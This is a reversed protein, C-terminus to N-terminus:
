RPQGTMRDLDRQTPHNVRPWPRAQEAEYLGIITAVTGRWYARDEPHADEWKGPTGGDIYPAEYHARAIREILDPDSMVQM